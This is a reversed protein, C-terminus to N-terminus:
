GQRRQQSLNHRFYQGVVSVYHIREVERVTTQQSSTFDMVVHATKRSNVKLKGEPGGFLLRFRRSLLKDQLCLRVEPIARSTKVPISDVYSGCATIYTLAWM